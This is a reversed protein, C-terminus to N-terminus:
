RYCATYEKGDIRVVMDYWLSPHLPSQIQKRFRVFEIDEPGYAEKKHFCRKEGNRKELSEGDVETTEGCLYKVERVIYDDNTLLLLETEEVKTKERNLGLSFLQDFFSSFAFEGLYEAIFARTWRIFGDAYVMIFTFSNKSDRRIYRM